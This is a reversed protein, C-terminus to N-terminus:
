RKPPCRSADISWEKIWQQTGPGQLFHKWAAQLPCACNVASSSPHCALFPACYHIHHPKVYVLSHVGELANSAKRKGKALLLGPNAKAAAAARAAVVEAAVPAASAAAAASGTAIASGHKEPIADLQPQASATALADAEHAEHLADDPANSPAPVAAAAAVPRSPEAAQGAPPPPSPAATRAPQRRLRRLAERFAPPQKEAAAAAEESPAIAAAEAGSARALRSPAQGGLLWTVESAKEL